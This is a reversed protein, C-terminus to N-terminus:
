PNPNPNPPRGATIPAYTGFGTLENVKHRVEEELRTHSETAVNLRIGTPSTVDVRTAMNNPYPIDPLPEADYDVRILPGSTAPTARLGEPATACSLLLPFM